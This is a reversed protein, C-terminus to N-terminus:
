KNQEERREAKAEDGVGRVAWRAMRMRTSDDIKIVVEDERVEVVTGCIGGISTVKDGKKLNSLMERRKAEQKRRSRGMWLYLLLFGGLIVIFPMMSGGGMQGCGPQRPGNKNDDSQEEGGDDSAEGGDGKDGKGADNETEAPTLEAAGGDTDADDEAWASSIPVLALLLAALIAWAAVPPHSTRCVNM